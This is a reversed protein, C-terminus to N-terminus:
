PTEPSVNRREPVGKKMEIIIEIAQAFLSKRCITTDRTIPLWYGL